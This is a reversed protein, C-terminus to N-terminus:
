QLKELYIVDKMDKFDSDFTVIKANNELASRYILSDIAHFGLKSSDEAAKECIKIDLCIITSNSKMFDLAKEIDGPTKKEAFLKRKVGYISLVSSFLLFEGSDVLEAIKKDGILFYSLWSSSDLLINFDKM